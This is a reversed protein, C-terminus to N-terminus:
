EGIDYRPPEDYGKRSSLFVLAMLGAGVVISFVIGITMVVYGERPMGEGPVLFGQAAYYAAAGLLMVMAALLTISGKRM